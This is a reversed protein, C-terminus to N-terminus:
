RRWFCLTGLTPTLGSASQGTLIHDQVSLLSRSYSGITNKLVEEGRRLESRNNEIENESWVRFKNNIYLRLLYTVLPVALLSLFVDPWDFWALSRKISELLEDHALATGGLVLLVILAVAGLKRKMHRRRPSPENARGEAVVRDRQECKMDLVFLLQDPAGGFTL